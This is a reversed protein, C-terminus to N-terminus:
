NLSSITSFTSVGMNNTHVLSFFSLLLFSRLFLMFDDWELCREYAQAIKDGTRNIDLQVCLSLAGRKLLYPVYTQAKHAHSGRELIDCTWPFLSGHEPGFGLNPVLRPVLASNPVGVLWQSSLSNLYVQLCLHSGIDWSFRCNTASSGTSNSFYGTLTWSNM